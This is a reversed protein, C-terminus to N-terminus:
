AFGRDNGGGNRHGAIQYAAHGATRDDGGGNRHGALRAAPSETAPRDLTRDNGGGNRHGALKHSDPHNDLPTEIAPAAAPRPENTANTGLPAILGVAFLFSFVAAVRALSLVKRINANLRARPMVGDRVDMTIETHLREAERSMGPLHLGNRDAAAQLYATKEPGHKSEFNRVRDTLELRHLLRSTTDASMAPLASGAFAESQAFRARHNLRPTIHREVYFVTKFACAVHEDSMEPHEVRFPVLYREATILADHLVDEFMDAPLNFRGIQKRVEAALRNHIIERAEPSFHQELASTMAM